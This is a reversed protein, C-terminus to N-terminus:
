PTYRKVLDQWLVEAITDSTLLDCADNRHSGSLPKHSTKCWGSWYNVNYAQREDLKDCALDNLRVVAGCLWLNGEDTESRFMEIMKKKTVQM